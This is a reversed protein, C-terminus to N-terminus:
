MALSPAAPRSSMKRAEFSLRRHHSAIATCRREQQAALRRWSSLAGLGAREDLLDGAPLDCLRFYEWWSVKKERRHWDLSHALIWRGHQEPTRGSLDDPVGLTLRDVLAAIMLQRESLEESAVAESLAPREINEGEAIASARVTELWDRLRHTSRCDDRNYAEVVRRENDGVDSADGLELFAQVKALAQNADPLSAERVYGYLPELRKISYSEVSARLGQRVVAFLDVFRRGRLLQDLEDERTAYRGMLRKLAAPEYPAFHYIHLDPYVSLRDIVFDIFREFAAREEGRSLAWDAVYREHGDKGRFSYGFLYELGGDGVFPDGEFDFFIDGPSPEYLKALGFGPVPQLREYLVAGAAKGEVQIRAQERVRELAATSGRTPRFTLPIPTTALAACTTVAQDSLEAIQVKSIGAVLSLHDDAHRKADCRERWRCVECFPKPDPYVNVAQDLKVAQELSARVRRYYAAFDDTRFSQRQYDSWPAIVHSQQPTLGQTRGVLDSYLSLQLVTGGKTERSLKTDVVEYSWHGLTSPTEVRLLVDSRGGWNCSLFAGQVIVDRGLSMARATAAVASEDFGVGPITEVELGSTRLHKVYGQEHRLGRERLVELLPSWVSPKALAGRAVALDLETLNRCNLHGVLDSASLQIADGIKLM